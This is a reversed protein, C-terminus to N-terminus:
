DRREFVFFVILSSQGSLDDIIDFAFVDSSGDACARALRLDDESARPQPTITLNSVTRPLDRPLDLALPVADM